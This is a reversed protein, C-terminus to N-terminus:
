GWYTAEAWSPFYEGQAWSRQMSAMRFLHHYTDHGRHFGASAWLPMASFLTLAIVLLLGPDLIKLLRGNASMQM